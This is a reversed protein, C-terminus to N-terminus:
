DPPLKVRKAARLFIWVFVLPIPLLLLAAPSAAGSLVQSVGLVMGFGYICAGYSLKRRRYKPDREMRDMSKAFRFMMWGLLASTAGVGVVVSILMWLKSM